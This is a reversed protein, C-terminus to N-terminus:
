ILLLNFFGLFYNYLVGSRLLQFCVLIGDCLAYNKPVVWPGEKDGLETGGFVFIVYSKAVVSTCLVRSAWSEPVSNRTQTMCYFICLKTEM